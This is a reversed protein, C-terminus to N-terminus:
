PLMEQYCTSCRWYIGGSRTHRLLTSSCLPCCRRSDMAKNIEASAYRSKSRPLTARIDLVSSLNIVTGQGM